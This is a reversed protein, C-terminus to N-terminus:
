GNIQGALERIKEEPIEYVESLRKIYGEDPKRNKEFTGLTCYSIDKELGLEFASLGLVNVRHEILFIGLPSRGSYDRKMTKLKAM